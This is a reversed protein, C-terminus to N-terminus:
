CIRFEYLRNQASDAEAVLESLEIDRRAEVYGAQVKFCFGPYLPLECMPSKRIGEELQDCFRRASEKDMSSLVVMIKNMGYRASIDFIGLHDQVQDAFGQIVTQGMVHGANTYIEEMNTLTLIVLSFPIHNEKLRQLEQYLRKEGQPKSEMGTLADHRTETGTIFARIVPDSSSMIADPSGEFIIRGEDLMAVRQSIYFVDPIEHSVIIGTFGFRKQYNSIMSHVANKRIPDLGTTPEDFLVIEPDTVLARALAVRKKMGGSLQSPYKDDVGVLDLLKIKDEVRARIEDKSLRTKEVLPLAINEFVTMSDFLAMAQFMYSFRKKLEKREIRSFDDLARGHYLIRGSDQKVLGVIHKLFVSKGTGSKGIITTIQGEYISLSVGKLVTNAGFSKFINDFRILPESM